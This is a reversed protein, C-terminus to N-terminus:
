PYSWPGTQCRLESRPGQVLFCRSRHIRQITRSKLFGDVSDLTNVLKSKGKVSHAETFGLQWPAVLFEPIDDPDDAVVHAIAEPPNWGDQRLDAEIKLFKDKLDEKVDGYTKEFYECFDISDTVEIDKSGLYKENIHARVQDEISM